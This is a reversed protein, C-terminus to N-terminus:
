RYLRICHRSSFPAQSRAGIGFVEVSRWRASGPSKLSCHQMITSAADYDAGGSDDHAGGAEYRHMAIFRWIATAGVGAPPTTELVSSQKSVCGRTDFRSFDSLENRALSKSGRARLLMGASRSSSGNIPRRWGPACLSTPEWYVKERILRNDSNRGRVGQPGPVHRKEVRKRAIDAVLDVLQNM